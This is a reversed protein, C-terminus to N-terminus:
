STEAEDLLRRLGGRLVRFYQPNLLRTRGPMRRKEMKRHIDSGDADRFWPHREYTLFLEKAEVYLRLFFKSIDEIEVKSFTGRFSKSHGLNRM